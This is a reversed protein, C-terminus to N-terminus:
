DCCEASGWAELGEKVLYYVLALSVVSDIWWTGFLRQAVLGALVALALYGCALSEAADAKLAPSSLTEAIRRKARALPFMIALAALAPDDVGTVMM